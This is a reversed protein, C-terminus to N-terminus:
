KKAKKLAAQLKGTLEKTEKSEPVAKLAETARQCFIELKRPDDLKDGVYLQSEDYLSRAMALLFTSRPVLATGTKLMEETKATDDPAGVANCAALLVGRERARQAATDMEGAPLLQGSSVKNFAPVPAATGKPYGFVLQIVDGKVRDLKSFDEAFALAFQAAAQRSETVQRHFATSDGRNLHSGMEYNAAINMYGAALGSKLVLSWPLARATYENESAMLNDLHEITKIYDGAAYVERAAQWYYAATGMKPGAQQSSCSVLVLFASVLAGLAIWRKATM